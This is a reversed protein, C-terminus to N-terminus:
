KISIEKSVSSVTAKKPLDLKLIGNEYKAGIKASDINDDLTFSRSFSKYSFEKRIHKADEEKKEEKKEASITLLDGDLKVNFDAKEMGPVAVELNYADSKEIVNVPPFNLSENVFVNGFTTPLDRFIDGVLGDFTKSIPNNVKVLTMITYNKNKLNIEIEDEWITNWLLIQSFDPM